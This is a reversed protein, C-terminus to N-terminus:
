GADGNRLPWGAEGVDHIPDLLLLDRLDDFRELVPAAFGDRLTPSWEDAVIARDARVIIGETLLRDVFSRVNGDVTSLESAAGSALQGVIEDVTKGAALGLWIQAGTGGLNYYIGSEYNALVVEDGFQRSILMPVSTSFYV